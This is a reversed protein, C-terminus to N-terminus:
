DDYHVWFKSTGFLVLTLLGVVILLFWAMASAYGMEYQTFGKFYLYLTYFLISDRFGGTGKGIIFAPTFAQFASILQMILNFFIIPTLMPFTIKFFRKVPGAGDIEAAEYLTDPINKIASVFIVMCSGFQWVLLVILTNVASGPNNIWSINEFQTFGLSSLLNNLLGDIGFVQRWLLAIAVSGGLLSPVYYVARFIKFGPIKDSIIVALFLAFILQLPVGLAVYHATVKASQIFRADNFMEIYNGMGVWQPANFMDYDTFSYYLSAIMPVLSFVVVGILWPALFAFAIKQTYKYKSNTKM